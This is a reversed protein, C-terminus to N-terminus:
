SAMSVQSTISYTQGNNRQSRIRQGALLLSGKFGSGVFELSLWDSLVQVGM